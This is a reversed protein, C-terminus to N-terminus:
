SVKGDNSVETFRALDPSDRPIGHVAVADSLIWADTRGPLPIGHFANDIAFLERFAMTMARGGAGGTLVLTGDIDFLVVTPPTGAEAKAKAASTEQAPGKPRHNKRSVLESDKTSSTSAAKYLAETSSGNRGAMM